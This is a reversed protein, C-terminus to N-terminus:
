SARAGSGRPAAAPGPACAAGPQWPPAAARSLEAWAASGAWGRACGEGACIVSCPRNQLGDASGSQCEWVSLSRAFLVKGVSARCPTCLADCQPRSASATLRRSTGRRHAGTGLLAQLPREARPTLCADSM